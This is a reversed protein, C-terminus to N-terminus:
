RRFFGRANQGAVARSLLASGNPGDGPGPENPMSRARFLREFIRVMSLFKDM